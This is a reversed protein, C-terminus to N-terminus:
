LNFNSLYHRRVFSTQHLKCARMAKLLVPQWPDKVQSRTVLLKCATSTPGHVIKWCFCIAGQAWRYTLLASSGRQKASTIVGLKTDCLPLLDAHCGSCKAAASRTLCDTAAISYRLNTIEQVNSTYCIPLWTMQWSIEVEHQQCNASPSHGLVAATSWCPQLRYPRPQLNSKWAVGDPGIVVESFSNEIHKRGCSKRTTEGLIKRPVDICVTQHLANMSILM